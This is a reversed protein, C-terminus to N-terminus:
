VYKLSRILPYHSLLLGPLHRPKRSAMSEQYSETSRNRSSHNTCNTVPACHSPLRKSMRSVSSVSRRTSSRSRTWCTAVQERIGALYQERLNQQEIREDESLGSSRKKRSLENIRAILEKTIM